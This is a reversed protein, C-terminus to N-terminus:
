EGLNKKRETLDVLPKFEAVEAKIEQKPMGYVQNTLKEYMRVVSELMATCQSFVKTKKEVNQITDITDITEKILQATRRIQLITNVMGGDFASTKKNGMIKDLEEDSMKAWNELKGRFTDAHKWGGPNRPNGNVAGFQTSTNIPNGNKLTKVQKTTTKDEEM